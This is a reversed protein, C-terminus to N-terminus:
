QNAPYDTVPFYHDFEDQTLEGYETVQRARASLTSVDYPASATVVIGGECPWVELMVPVDHIGDKPRNLTIIRENIRSHAIHTKIIPEM